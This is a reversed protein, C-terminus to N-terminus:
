AILCGLQPSGGGRVGHSFTGSGRMESLDQPIQVLLKPNICINIVTSAIGRNRKDKGESGRGEVGTCGPRVPHDFLM